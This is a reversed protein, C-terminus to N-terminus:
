SAARRGRKAAGPQSAKLLEGLSNKFQKVSKLLALIQASALLVLLAQPGITVDSAILGAEDILYGIPTAFMAYRRSIEWSKQVAVPFSVPAAAFEEVVAELAGRSVVLVAIDPTRKHLAELQPMLERCPRCKPDSFVLLLRRGRYTELAIEGGGIALPLRFGPATAGRALGKRNIRSDALSRNGQHAHPAEKKAAGARATRIKKM